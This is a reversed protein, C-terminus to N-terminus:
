RAKTREMHIAVGVFKPVQVPVSVAYTGGSPNYTLDPSSSRTEDKIIMANAGLEKAKDQLVSLVQARDQGAAGTATLRAIPTYAQGPPAGLLEVFPAPPYTGWGALHEVQLAVPQSACGVLSCVAAIVILVRVLVM